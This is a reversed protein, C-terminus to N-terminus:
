TIETTSTDGNNNLALNDTTTFLLSRVGSELVYLQQYHYRTLLTREAGSFGFMWKFIINEIQM